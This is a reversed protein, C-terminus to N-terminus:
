RTVGPALTLLSTFNRGNLPLENVTREEVVTGMETSSAQLLEASASVNVTESVQGVPMRFDQSAIQNVDLRLEPSAASQFGTQSATIKYNGPALLPFLYFGEGNTTTTRSLGSQSNVLTVKAGVVVAGNEDTVHGNFQGTATQANATTCFALLLACCAVARISARLLRALGSQASEPHTNEFM